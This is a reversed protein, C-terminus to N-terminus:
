QGFNIKNEVKTKINKTLNAKFKNNSRKENNINYCYFDRSKKYVMKMQLIDRANTKFSSSSGKLNTKSFM